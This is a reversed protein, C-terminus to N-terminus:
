RLHDEASGENFKAYTMAVGVGSKIKRTNKSKAAKGDNDDTEVFPIPVMQRTTGQRECMRRSAPHSKSEKSM